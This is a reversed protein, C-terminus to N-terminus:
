NINNENNENNDNNALFKIYKNIYKALNEQMSKSNIQNNSECIYNNYFFSTPDIELENAYIRIPTDFGEVKISYEDLFIPDIAYTVDIRFLIPHRPEKWFYKIYDKYLKIAFTLIEVHLPTKIFDQICLNPINTGYAIYRVIGNHFFVRYENKRNKVIKNFGQIIYYRDINRDLVMSNSDVNFLKKFNMGKLKKLIENQTLNNNKNFIRVQRGEYSYGKKVVVKDFIKWLEVITDYIKLNNNKEKAYKYKRFKLVITHPLSAYSFHKVLTDYYKKGGFTDIVNIPPYIYINKNKLDYLYQKMEYITKNNLNSNTLVDHFLFIAKINEPKIENVTKILENPKEIIKINYYKHTIKKLLYNAEKYIVNSPNDFWYEEGLIIITKM